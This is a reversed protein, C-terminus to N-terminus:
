SKVELQLGFGTLNTLLLPKTTQVISDFSLKPDDDYTVGSFM